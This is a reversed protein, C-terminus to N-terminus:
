YGQEYLYNALEVYFENQNFENNPKLRYPIFSKGPFDWHDADLTKIHHGWQASKVSVVGDNDGEVDHILQWSLGLLSSWQHPMTAKATYSYYGVNPDNPTSPNFVQTCYDTTLNSYAPSDFWQGLYHLLHQKSFSFSSSSHDEDLSSLKFSHDNERRLVTKLLDGKMCSIPNTTTDHHHNESQKGVGFHNRFYDMLPSGNHPTSITTLSAVKYPKNPIHSILYRCDLGGMSYGIFNIQQNPMFSSLISHLTNARTSISGNKPVRTIILKAGLDTFAKEVGNWYRVQLSPIHDPGTTDYGNLGHTLVIPNRPARYHPTVYHFSSSSPSSTFSSTTSSSSTTTTSLLKSINKKKNMIITTTIKKDKLKMIRNTTEPTFFDIVQSAKKIQSPYFAENLKKTEVKKKKKVPPEYLTFPIMEKISLIASSITPVNLSHQLSNYIYSYLPLTSM